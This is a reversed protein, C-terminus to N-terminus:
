RGAFSHIRHEGRRCYRDCIRRKVQRISCRILRSRRRGRSPATTYEAYTGKGSRGFVAQGRAFSAVEAGVDEVIGAFSAGPIVPFQVPIPIMGQRIKWDIPLVSSAIVRILVEKAGPIPVATEELRLLEAGGFRHYRIAKMTKEPM